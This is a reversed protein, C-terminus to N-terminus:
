LNYCTLSPAFANVALYPSVDEVFADDRFEADKLRTLSRASLADFSPGEGPPKYLDAWSEALDYWHPNMSEILRIKKSRAM